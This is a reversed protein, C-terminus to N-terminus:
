PRRSEFFLHIRQGDTVHLDFRELAARVCETEPATSTFGRIRAPTNPELTVKLPQLAVGKEMLCRRAHAEAKGMREDWSAPPRPRPKAKPRAAPPEAAADAQALQPPQSAAALAPENPRWAPAPEVPAREIPPAAAPTPPAAAATPADATERSLRGLGFSALAVVLLAAATGLRMSRSSALSAPRPTIKTKVIELSRVLEAMTRHRESTDGVGRRLELVLPALEPQFEEAVIERHRYAADNYLRRGTVLEYLVVCVSFVDNQPTTRGENYHQPDTYAANGVFELDGSQFREGAVTVPRLRYYDDTLACVGFDLLRVHDGPEIIINNPKVDRHIVGAEHVAMLVRGLDIALTLARVPELPGASMLEALTAGQVIEMTFYAEGKKTDGIEYIVPVGRHGITSLAKFERRFRELFHGDSRHSRKIAVDRRARLDHALHVSGMGGCGLERIVKYRGYLPEDHRSRPQSM